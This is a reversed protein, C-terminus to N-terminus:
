KVRRLEPGTKPFHFNGRQGYDSSTQHPLEEAEMWGDKGPTPHTLSLYKSLRSIVKAYEPDSAGDDSKHLALLNTFEHPDDDLRYLETEGTAFRTMRYENDLVVDYRIGEEESSM